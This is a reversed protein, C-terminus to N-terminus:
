MLIATTGNRGEGAAFSFGSEYKKWVGQKAIEDFSPNNLLNSESNHSKIIKLIPQEASKDGAATLSSWILCFCLLVCIAFANHRINM